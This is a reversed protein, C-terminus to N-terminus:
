YEDWIKLFMETNKDISHYKKVFCNSEKSIKPLSEKNNILNKLKLYVDDADPLINIIPSELVGISKLYEPEAGSLVICGFLMAYLANMSPSYSYTQDIVITAKFLMEQYLSFPLSETLHIEVEEGFETKIKKLAEQIIYSGKLGERGKNIGHFIIIKDLKKNKLDWKLISPNISLPVFPLNPAIRDYAIKYEICLPIITNVHERVYKSLKKLGKTDWPNEGLMDYKLQGEFAYYKYSKNRFADWVVDDEGCALLFKKAKSAFVKKYILKQFPFPIIGPNIIQIIDFNNREIFKALDFYAKIIKYYRIWKYRERIHLDFERPYNKFGDGSHATIVTHGLNRLTMALDTHVGSYEGLLLIKM